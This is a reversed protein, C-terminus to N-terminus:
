CAHEVGNESSSTGWTFDDDMFRVQSGTDALKYPHNRFVHFDDIYHSSVVLGIGKRSNYFLNRSTEILSEFSKTSATKVASDETFNLDQESFSSVELADPSVDEDDSLFAGVTVFRVSLAVDFAAALELLSTVTLRGYDPNEMRSIASQPKGARRGLEAQSWGRQDRLTMIQFAIGTRVADAIYADRFDKGALEEILKPRYGTVTM